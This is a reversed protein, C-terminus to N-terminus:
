ACMLAIGTPIETLVEVGELVMKGRYGYVTTGEILDFDFMNDIRVLFSQDPLADPEPYICVAAMENYIEILKVYQDGLLYRPEEWSLTFLAQYGLWYDSKLQNGLIKAYRIDKFKWSIHANREFQYSTDGYYIKVNAIAM